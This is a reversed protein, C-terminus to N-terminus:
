SKSNQYTRWRKYKYGYNKILKNDREKVEKFFQDLEEINM